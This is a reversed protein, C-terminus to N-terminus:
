KRGLMGDGFVELECLLKQYKICMSFYVYMLVNWIRMPMGVPYRMWCKMGRGPKSARPLLGM